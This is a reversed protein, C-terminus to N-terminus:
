QTVVDSLWRTVFHGLSATVLYGTVGVGVYCCVDFMLAFM